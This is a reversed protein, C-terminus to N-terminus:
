NSTSERWQYALGAVVSTALLTWIVLSGAEPVPILVLQDQKTVTGALNTLQMIRVNGISNSDWSGGSVADAYNSEWLTRAASADTGTYGLSGWILNQLSNASDRSSATSATDFDFGTLGNASNDGNRFQTYAWAAIPVLTKSTSLDGPRGSTQTGIAVVKYTDTFNIFQSVGTETCFTDFPTFSDSSSTVGTTVFRGADTGPGNGFSLQSGVDVYISAQALSHFGLSLALILFAKLTTKM